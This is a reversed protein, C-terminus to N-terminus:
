VETKDDKGDETMWEIAELLEDETVSRDVFAEGIQRLLIFKINGADMKKDSKTTRLVQEPVLSGIKTPLSFRQFAECIRKVDSDGM